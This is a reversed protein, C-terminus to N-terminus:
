FTFGEEITAMKALVAHDSAPLDSKALECANVLLNCQMLLIDAEVQTLPKRFQDPKANNDAIARSIALDISVPTTKLLGEFKCGVGPPFAGAGWLSSCFSDM